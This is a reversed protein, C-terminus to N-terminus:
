PAKRWENWKNRKNKQHLQKQSPTPQTTNLQQHQNPHHSPQTLKSQIPHQSTHAPLFPLRVEGFSLYNAENKPTFFKSWWRFVLPVAVSWWRFVLSCRGFVGDNKGFVLPVGVSCCRFVLPVGVARRM